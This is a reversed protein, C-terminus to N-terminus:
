TLVRRAAGLMLATAGVLAAALGGERGMVQFVAEVWFPMESSAGSAGGAQALYGNYSWAWVCLLLGTTMRLWPMPETDDNDTTMVFRVPSPEAKPSEVEVPELDDLVTTPEALRFDVAPKMIRGCGVCDLAVAQHLGCDPCSMDAARRRIRPSKPILPSPEDLFASVAQMSM